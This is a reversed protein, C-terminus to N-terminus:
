ENRDAEFHRPTHALHITVEKNSRILVVVKLSSLGESVSKVGSGIEIMIMAHVRTCAGECKCGRIHVTM